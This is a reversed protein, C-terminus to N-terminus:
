GVMEAVEVRMEARETLRSKGQRPFGLSPLMGGQYFM